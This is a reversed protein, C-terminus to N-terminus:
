PYNKKKELRQVEKELYEKGAELEKKLTNIRRKIVSVQKKTDLRELMSGCEPCEFKYEMATDYKYTVCKKPCGFYDRVQKQKLRNELFAIKEKKLTILLVLVKHLNFTWYYIYWGKRKDKKRISDVLNYSNLKYLMNRTQNVTVGLKDALKFESINEKNWMLEVLSVVGKGSINEILDNILKNLPIM